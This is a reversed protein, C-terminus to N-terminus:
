PSVSTPRRHVQVKVRDAVSVAPASVVGAILQCGSADRRHEKRRGRVM